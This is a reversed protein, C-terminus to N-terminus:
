GVAVYYRYDGADRTTRQHNRQHRLIGPRRPRSEHPHGDSARHYPALRGARRRRRLPRRVRPHCIQPLRNRRRFDPAYRPQALPRLPIGLKAPVSHVGLELDSAYDQCAYLIDFGATWTLVAVFMIVPPWDLKGCVAVWACVPALALAAGLYYHCLETFCKLFPYAGLFALVPLSLALPWLNGYFLWFGGAGLIFGVCCVIVIGTVYRRSLKGSPIARRATRPNKADLAADFLRNAGMAVTRATVM